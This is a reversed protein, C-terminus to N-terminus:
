CSCARCSACCGACAGCTMVAPGGGVRRSDRFCGGRSPRRRPHRGRGGSIVSVLDAANVVTVNAVRLPSGTVKGKTSVVIAEVWGALGANKLRSKLEMAERTAQRCVKEADRGGSMLKGNKRYFGKAWEKTELAFVGTPGVVAHDINGFGTDIDHIVVYGNAEMPELLRGVTREGRLGRIWSTPDLIGGNTLRWVIAVAAFTGLSIVLATGASQFMAFVALPLAVVLVGFVLYARIHVQNRLYQGAVRDAKM